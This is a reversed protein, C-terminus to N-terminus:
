KGKRGDPLKNKRLDRIMDTNLAQFSEVLRDCAPKAAECRVDMDLFVDGGKQVISRRVVAPHAEHGQPTFSWLTMREAIVLWGSEERIKVGDKALLASRAEAVSRYEIKSEAFAAVAGLSLAMPLAGIARARSLLRLM